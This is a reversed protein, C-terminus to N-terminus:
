PVSIEGVTQRVAVAVHLVALWYVVPVARRVSWYKRVNLM